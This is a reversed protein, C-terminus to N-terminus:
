EIGGSPFNDQGHSIKLLEQKLINKMFDDYQLNALDSSEEASQFISIQNSFNLFKGNQETTMEKSKKM